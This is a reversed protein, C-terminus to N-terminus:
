IEFPSRGTTIGRAALDETTVMGHERPDFGSPFLTTQDYLADTLRADQLNATSLNAGGLRTFRGMDCPSFDAGSLDAGNFNTDEVNAGRFCARVCICNTFDTHYLLAWYFNADTLDAGDLEAYALDAVVLEARRLNAGALIRRGGFIFDPWEGEASYLIDGERNRILM